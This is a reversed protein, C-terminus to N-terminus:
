CFPNSSYEDTALHTTNGTLVGIDSTLDVEEKKILELAEAKHQEIAFYEQFIELITRKLTISGDRFCISIVQPGGPTASRFFAPNGLCLYGAMLKL